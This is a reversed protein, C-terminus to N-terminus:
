KEDEVLERVADAADRYTMKVAHHTGAGAMEELRVAAEEIAWRAGAEFAAKLARKRVESGMDPSSIDWAEFAQRIKDPM